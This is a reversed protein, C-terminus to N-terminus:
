FMSFVGWFQNRGTVQKRLSEVDDQLESSSWNEELHNKINARIYPFLVDQFLCDFHIPEDLNERVFSVKVFKISTTTGEIDLLICKYM